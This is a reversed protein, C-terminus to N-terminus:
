RKQFSSVKGGALERKGKRKKKKGSKAQQLEKGTKKGETKEQGLIGGFDRKQKKEKRGKQYLVEDKSLTKGKSQVVKRQKEGSGGKKSGASPVHVKKM